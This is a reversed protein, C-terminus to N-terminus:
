ENETSSSSIDDRALAMGVRLSKQIPEVFYSMGFYHRWTAVLRLMWFTVFSSKANNSFGMVNGTMACQSNWVIGLSILSCNASNYLICIVM